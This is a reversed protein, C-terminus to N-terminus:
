REKSIKLIFVLLGTAFIIYTIASIISNVGTTTIIQETGLTGTYYLLVMGFIDSLLIALIGILMLISGLNKKKIVAIISALLIILKAIFLFSGGIMNLVPLGEM